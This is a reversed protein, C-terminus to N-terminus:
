LEAENLRQRREPSLVKQAVLTARHDFLWYPSEAYRSSVENDEHTFQIVRWDSYWQLWPVLSTKTPENSRPTQDGLARIVHFGASRTHQKLLRILRAVRELSMFHLQGLVVVADYHNEPALKFADVREALFTVPLGLMRAQEVTEAPEGVATVTFGREAM